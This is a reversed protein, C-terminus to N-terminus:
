SDCLFREQVDVPLLRFESLHLVHFMAAEFEPSAHEEGRVIFLFTARSWKTIDRHLFTFDRLTLYDCIRKCAFLTPGVRQEVALGFNESGERPDELLRVLRAKEFRDMWTLVVRPPRVKVAGQCLQCVASIPARGSPLEVVCLEVIRVLRELDSADGTVHTAATVADPAALFRRLERTCSERDRAGLVKQVFPGGYLMDLVCVGLSWVDREFSAPEAQDPPLWPWQAEGSFDLLVPQRRSHMHVSRSSMLGYPLGTRTHLYRLAHALASTVQLIRHYSAIEKLECLELLTRRIPQRDFQHIVRKIKGHGMVIQSRDPKAINPHDLSHYHVLEFLAQQLVSSRRPDSDRIKVYRYLSDSHLYLWCNEHCRRVLKSEECASGRHLVRFRARASKPGHVVTDVSVVNDTNLSAWLEFCTSLMRVSVGWDTEVGAGTESVRSSSLFRRM